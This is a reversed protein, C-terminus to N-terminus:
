GNKKKNETFLYNSVETKTHVTHIFTKNAKRVQFLTGLMLGIAKPLKLVARFFDRNVLGAPLALALTLMYLGWLGLAAIGWFTSVFFSLLAFVPLLVFLFARPLVVNCLVALNFYSAHGKILEGFAPILFRKFYIFQSSVWRKRQQQFAHSSSVKEDFVLADDLYRISIGRKVVELQLIKDFGGVADIRSLIDKVMGFEFAMGSGIVASSLGVANSGKRFIHNNIAESCADLIAFSTDLNKAVRRGQVARAGGKFAGEIKGLFDPALMNDADIILAIDYSRSIQGFAENLSRTKTSKEFAVEVVHIPLERLRVLTAPQFGDAIIYIDYCGRPYDLNLLNEVTSLIIGDEKYAPVLVAMSYQSGAGGDQGAGPRNAGRRYFLRGSLSLIFLYLVSFACYVFLVKFLIKIIIELM